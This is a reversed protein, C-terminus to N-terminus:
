KIKQKSMREFRKRLARRVFAAVAFDRQKMQDIMKRDEKSMRITLSETKKM